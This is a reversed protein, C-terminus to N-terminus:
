GLHAIPSKRTLQTMGPLGYVMIVDNQFLFSTVMCEEPGQASFAPQHEHDKTEDHRGTTPPLLSHTQLASQKGVSDSDRATGTWGVEAAYPPPLM